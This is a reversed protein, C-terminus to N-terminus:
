LLPKVMRDVTSAPLVGWYRSDFSRPLTGIVVLEGPALVRDIDVPQKGKAALNKLSTPHRKAIFKGNIFLGSSNSVVHDGPMGAIVKAIRKGTMINFMIRDNAKFSVVDGRKLEADRPYGLYLHEPLCRTEAMDLFMGYQTNFFLGASGLMVVVTGATILERRTARFLFAFHPLVAKRVFSVPSRVTSLTIM